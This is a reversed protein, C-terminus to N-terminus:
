PSEVGLARLAARCTALGHEAERAEMGSVGQALQSQYGQYAQLYHAAAREPRNLRFYVTALEQRLKPSAADPRAALVGEYAQTAEQLRGSSAFQRAVRISRQVARGGGRGAGASPTPRVTPPSDLVEGGGPLFRSPTERPPRYGPFTLMVPEKEAAPAEPEYDSYGSDGTDEIEPEPASVGGGEASDSPGAATPGAASAGPMGPVPLAAAAISPEPAPNRPRSATLLEPTEGEGQGGSGIDKTQGVLMFATIILIVAIVAFAAIYIADRRRAAPIEAPSIPEPAAPVGLLENLRQRDATSGPSLSLVAQYERIAADRNGLREYLTGLLSHATTSDPNFSLAQQALRVAETLRGADSHAFAETLIRDARAFAEESISARPAKESAATQEEVSEGCAV